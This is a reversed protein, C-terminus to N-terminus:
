ARFILPKGPIATDKFGKPKTKENYEAFEIEELKALKKFLEANDNLVEEENFKLKENLDELGYAEVEKVEFTAFELM